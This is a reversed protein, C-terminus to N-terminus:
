KMIVCVCMMVKCVIVGNGNYINGTAMLVIVIAVGNAAKEAM